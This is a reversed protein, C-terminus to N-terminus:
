HQHYYLTLCTWTLNGFKDQSGFTCKGAKRPLDQNPETENLNDVVGVIPLPKVLHHINLLEMHSQCLKGRCWKLMWGFFGNVRLLSAMHKELVCLTLWQVTCLGLVFTADSWCGGHFGALKWTLNCKFGSCAPRDTFRMGTPRSKACGDLGVRSSVMGGMHHISPTKRLPLSPM